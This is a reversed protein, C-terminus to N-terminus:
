LKWRGKCERYLKDDSYKYFKCLDNNDCKNRLNDIIRRLKNDELQYKGINKIIKSIDKNM